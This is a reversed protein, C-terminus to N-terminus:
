RTFVTPIFYVLGGPHRPVLEGDVIKLDLWEPMSCYLVVETGGIKV